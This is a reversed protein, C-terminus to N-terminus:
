SCSLFLMSSVQNYIMQCNGEGMKEFQGSVGPQEELTSGQATALRRISIPM